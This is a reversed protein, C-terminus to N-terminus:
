AVGTNVGAERLREFAVAADVTLVQAILNVAVHGGAALPQTVEVASEARGVIGVEVRRATVAGPQDVGAVVALNDQTKHVKLQIARAVAVVNFNVIPQLLVGPTQQPDQSGEVRSRGYRHHRGRSLKPDMKICVFDVRGTAKVNGVLDIAETQRPLNRTTPVPATVGLLLPTVAVPM